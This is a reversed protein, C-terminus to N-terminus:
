SKTNYLVVLRLGLVKLVVAGCGGLEKSKVCVCQGDVVDMMLTVGCDHRRFAGFARGLYASEDRHPVGVAAVISDFDVVTAIMSRIETGDGFKRPGPVSLSDM